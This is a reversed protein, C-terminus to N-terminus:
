QRYGRVQMVAQAKRDCLGRELGAPYQHPDVLRKIGPHLQALQEGTRRRVEGLEPLAGALQGGRLVPELLDCHDADAPFTKRRTTDAPDVITWGDAPPHRTDYVADGIAQGGQFFRRVQLIGPTSSKVLQESVKLRDHWRGQEDCLASLKYVGGLAPEDYATVMRTGVGWVQVRAGQEKLAAIIHEDLDNSAIILTDGLGAEDLIKRAEISLYALDGSDLRVGQLRRGQRRLQRGVEVANRVGQLSDYTDVLLVCNNPMAEAYARFAAPEDDFCMVWSHALTGRVPIGFLRGALTNSTAACGGVYAARSASVGGDIGHARRLGFELVPDGDAALVVRAAKTAVLTQFNIINLVATELLQAQVLPGVVRVLPEHPFVVTGEPVADVDCALRLRGLYDLFAASFIPQGDDGKLGALYELDGPAFRFQELYDVLTGLGCAVTFGGGFPNTRFTLHFAARRNDLGAKWYGYAMTLEYLDVLLALSAKYMERIPGNLTAIIGQQPFM